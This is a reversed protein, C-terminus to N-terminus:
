IPEQHLVNGPSSIVSEATIDSSPMYKGEVRNGQLDMVVTDDTSLKDYDVGSPKIM